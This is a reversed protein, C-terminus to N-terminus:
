IQINKCMDDLCDGEFHPHALWLGAASADVPCAFLSKPEFFVAAAAALSVQV